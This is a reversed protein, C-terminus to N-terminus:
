GPSVPATSPACPPLAGLTPITLDPTPTVPSGPEELALAVVFIFPLHPLAPAECMATPRGLARNDLFTTRVMGHVWRYPNPNGAITSRNGVIVTDSVPRHLVETRFRTGVIVAWETDSSGAFRNDVVETRDDEVRVGYTVDVFRNHRVTNGAARDLVIRNVGEALYPPDSCDMPSTNESMRSGVWVGNMGGIFANGEIVNRDAGYRRPFWSDPRRHVYEGCNTYLFISGASNGAFRNHRVVNRRSGDIALGERGTGWFRFRHGGIAILQGAAGNEGYGNHRLTDHEIVNDASGAELYIGTSGADSVRSRRITTRTVSGDVYIGVGHSGSVRARDIVVGSLEHDYEHGAPLARFGARTVRISNLFGRVTCNRITVGVLDVDAPTSVEIGVGPQGIGDVVAGRCDFVVHSRTIEFGGTYTCRPDLNASATITVRQQGAACPVMASTTPASPASASARTAVPGVALMLVGLAGVM